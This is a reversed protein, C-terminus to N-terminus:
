GKVQKAVDPSKEREPLSSDHEKEWNIIWCPTCYWVGDKGYLVSRPKFCKGCTRPIHRTIDDVTEIGLSNIEDM